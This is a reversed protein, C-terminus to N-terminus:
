MSTRCHDRNLKLRLKWLSRPSVSRVKGLTLNIAGEFDHHKYQAVAKRKHILSVINSIVVEVQFFGARAMKPGGTKAVDGIAFINPHEPM